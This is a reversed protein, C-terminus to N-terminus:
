FAGASGVPPPPCSSEKTPMQGGVLFGLVRFFSIVLIMCKVRSEKLFAKKGSSKLPAFLRFGFYM